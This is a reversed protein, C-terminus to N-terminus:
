KQEYFELTKKAINNWDYEDNHGFSKAGQGLEKVLNRDSILSLMAKAFCEADGPEVLIGNEHDKIVETLAGVKTSIVPNGFMFSTPVIGTQSASKYPLVVVDAVENLYIMEDDDLFRNIVICNDMRAFESLSSDHGAGAIILNFDSGNDNLLKVAKLLLALGKYERIYGYFLFTIKSRDIPLEMKNKNNRFLLLTQFTGMPTMIVKCKDAGPISMFRNYTSKSLLVVKSRDKIILEMLPSTAVGDSHSGVEHFTHILNEGNLQEHIFDVWRWQGVVNIADYHKNRIHKLASRLIMKNVVTAKMHYSAIRIINFSIPLGKTFRHIEPITKSNLRHSGPFMSAGVYSIGPQKGTDHHIDAIFFFDVEVGQEAIAKALCLSAELHFFSIIAIKNMVM